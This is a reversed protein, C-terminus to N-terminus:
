RALVVHAEDEELYYFVRLVQHAAGNKDFCVYEGVRPVNNMMREHFWTQPVGEDTTKASPIHTLYFTVKM